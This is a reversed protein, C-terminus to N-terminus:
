DRVWRGAWAENIRRQEESLRDYTAKPNQPVVVFEHYAVPRVGLLDVPALEGCSSFWARTPWGCEYHVWWGRAEDFTFGTAGCGCFRMPM